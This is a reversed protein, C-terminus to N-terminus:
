AEALDKFAPNGWYEKFAPDNLAEDKYETDSRFSKALCELMREAKRQRAHLIAMNYLVKPNDPSLELAKAYADLAEENRQLDRLVSGMNSWAVAHDNKSLLLKKYLKLADHLNGNAACSSADLFLTQVQVERMLQDEKGRFFIEVKEKLDASSMRIEAEANKKWEGLTQAIEEEAKERLGMVVERMRHETKQQLLDCFREIESENEERLHSFFGMAETRKKELEELITTTRKTIENSEKIYIDAQKITEKWMRLRSYGVASFYIMVLIFVVALAVLFASKSAIEGTVRTKESEIMTRLDASSDKIMKRMADSQALNTALEAQLKNIAAKLKAMEEAKLPDKPYLKSGKSEWWTKWLSDDTGFNEETLKRLAVMLAVKVSTEGETRLADMLYPIGRKSGEALLVAASIRVQVDKHSLKQIELYNEINSAMDLELKTKLEIQTKLEARLKDMEGKLGQLDDIRQKEKAELDTALKKKEENWTKEKAEADTQIKQRADTQAKLEEKTKQLEALRATEKETTEAQLKQMQEAQIKLDYQLKNIEEKFKQTDDTQLAAKPYLKIGESEWWGKWMDYDNGFEKATLLRLAKAIEARVEVSQESKLVDVLYPVSKRVKGGALMQAAATRVAPESSSLQQIAWDNGDRLAAVFLLPALLITFRLFHKM